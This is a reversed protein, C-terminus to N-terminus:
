VHTAQDFSEVVPYLVLWLVVARDNARAVNWKVSICAKAEAEGEAQDGM